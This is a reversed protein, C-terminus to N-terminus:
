SQKLRNLKRDQAWERYAVFTVVFALIYGLFPLVSKQTGPVAIPLPLVVIMLGVLSTTAIKSRDWMSKLSPKSGPVLFENLLIGIMPLAWTWAYNHPATYFLIMTFGSLALTEVIKIGPKFVIAVVIALILVYRAAGWVGVALAAISSVTGVDTVGLVGLIAEVGLVLTEGWLGSAETNARIWADVTIVFDGPTIAFLAITLGLGAIVTTLIERWWKLRAFVFILLIPYIKTTAMLVLMTVALWKRNTLVGISFLCFLIALFGVSNGRDFAMLAPASLCGIAIAASFRSVRSFKELVVWVAFASTLTMLGLYIWMATYYPFLTLLKLLYVPVSPYQVLFGADHTWPNALTAWDFTQLFDGFYHIGVLRSEEYAEPRIYPRDRETNSLVANAPFRLYIIKFGSWIFAVAEVLLVLLPLDEVKFRTEFIREIKMVRGYKKKGWSRSTFGVLPM